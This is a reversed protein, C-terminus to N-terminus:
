ETRKKGNLELIRSVYEKQEQLDLLRFQYCFLAVLLEHASKSSFNRIKLLDRRSKAHELIDGMRQFGARKLCNTTHITMEASELDIGRIGSNLYVPFLFREDRDNMFEKHRRDGFNDMEFIIEDERKTHLIESNRWSIVGGPLIEVIVRGDLYYRGREMEVDTIDIGKEIIQMVAEISMGKLEGSMFYQNPLPAMSMVRQIKEPIHDKEDHISFFYRGNEADASDDAGDYGQVVFRKGDCFGTWMYGWNDKSAEFPTMYVLIDNM